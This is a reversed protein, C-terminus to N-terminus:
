TRVANAVSVEPFAVVLAETGTLMLLATGAGRIVPKFGVEPATPVDIEIVPVPKPADCAVLVTVKLPVGAVGVFQLAVLIMAGTGVPAVVPLTTNVTPPTALLPMSKVTFEGGIMVLKLGVDPATAVGTVMVPVLKPAVWPVPVTVKLPVAPVGVLQFAVVMTTGTGLPAVVPLTTIVLAMPGPPPEPPVVLLPSFKVTVEVAGLMVLKLGVDPAAPVGTVMAPVLKPAVWPVLVTVNLPVAAVGEVQLAVLM